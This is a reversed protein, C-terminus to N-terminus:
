LAGTLAGLVFGVVVGGWFGLTKFFRKQPEDLIAVHDTTLRTTQGTILGTAVGTDIQIIRFQSVLADRRRPDVTIGELGKHVWKATGIAFSVTSDGVAMIEFRTGRVQGPAAAASLTLLSFVFVVCRLLRRTVMTVTSRSETGIAHGM